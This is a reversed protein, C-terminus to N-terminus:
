QSTPALPNSMVCSVQCGNMHLHRLSSVAPPAGAMTGSLDLAHLGTLSSLQQVGRDSICADRLSLETLRTLAALMECHSDTVPGKGVRLSMLETLGALGGVDLSTGACMGREVSARSRSAGAFSGLHKWLVSVKMIGVRVPAIQDV